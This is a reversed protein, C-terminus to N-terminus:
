QKELNLSSNLINLINEKMNSDSNEWLIEFFVGLGPLTLEDEKEIEDIISNKLENIDTEKYNNKIYTRIDM